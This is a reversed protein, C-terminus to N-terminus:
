GNAVTFPGAVGGNSSKVYIRAPNQAPAAGNRLRISFDGIGPPAAATVTAVAGPIVAGIAGTSTVRYVTVTSGVVSGTGIVRFDGAKWKASTITLRDTVPQITTTVKASEAGFGAAATKAKISFGYSAGGTLGTITQTRATTEPPQSGLPLATGNSGYVTM